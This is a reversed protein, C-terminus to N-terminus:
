PSSVCGLGVGMLLRNSVETGIYGDSVAVCDYWITGVASNGINNWAEVRFQVFYTGGTVLGTQEVVKTDDVWVELVGDGDGIKGHLELYYWEDTRLDAFTASSYSASPTAGVWQYLGGAQRLLNVRFSGATELHLLSGIQTGVALDNDFMVYAREYLETPRGAVTTYSIGYAGANDLGTIQAAYSGHHKITSQVTVTTSNVNTGTWASFDGSEFGDSFITAM